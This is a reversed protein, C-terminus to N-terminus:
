TSGIGHARPIESSRSHRGSITLMGYRVSSGVQTFSEPIRMRFFHEGDNTELSYDREVGIYSIEIPMAPLVINPPKKEILKAFRHDNRTLKEMETKQAVLQEIGHCL